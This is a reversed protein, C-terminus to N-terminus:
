YESTSNSSKIITRNKTKSSDGVKGYLSYWNVNGGHPNGKAQKTELM